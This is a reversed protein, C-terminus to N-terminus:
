WNYRTVKQNIGEQHVFPQLLGWWYNQSPTTEVCIESGQQVPNHTARATVETDSTKRESSWRSRRLDARSKDDMSYRVEEWEEIESSM